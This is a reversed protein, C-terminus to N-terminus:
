AWSEGSSARAWASSIQREMLSFFRSSFMRGVRWRARRIRRLPALWRMSLTESRRIHCRRRVVPEGSRIAACRPRAVGVREAECEGGLVSGARGAAGLFFDDGGTCAPADGIDDAGATRVVVGVLFRVRERRDRQHQRPGEGTAAVGTGSQQRFAGVHQQARPLGVLARVSVALAIAAQGELERRLQEIPKGAIGPSLAAKAECRRGGSRSNARTVARAQM